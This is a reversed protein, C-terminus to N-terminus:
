RMKERKKQVRMSELMIYFPSPEYWTAEEFM